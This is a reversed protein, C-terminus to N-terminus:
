LLLRCVLDSRSQLESTHEESRLCALAALLEPPNLHFIWASAAVPSTLRGEWGLKAQTVDLREVPVGLAEFARAALRASAAIGHLDSSRRTPFSPLARLPRAPQL